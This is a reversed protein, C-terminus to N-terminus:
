AITIHYSPAHWWGGQRGHHQGSVFTSVQLAQSSRPATAGIEGSACLDDQAQGIAGRVGVDLAPEALTRSRDALPFGAEQLAPDGTQLTAIPARDRGHQRRLQLRADQRPGASRRRVPRRVPTRALQRRGELQATMGEHLARPLARPQLRMAQFPVHPRGIGRELGLRCIHDAQIEIGRLMGRDEAEVLLGRDLRQVPEIRDQGERGTARLAMAELVLPVPRHRQIRREVGSGAFHDTLGGGPVGAVVEQGEEAFEDLGLGAAALYVDNQVVQRGVLVCFTRVNRAALGRTDNCKVGM